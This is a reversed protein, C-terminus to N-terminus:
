VYKRTYMHIFYRGHNSKTRETKKWGARTLAINMKKFAVKDQDIITTIFLKFQMQRKLKDTIERVNASWLRQEIKKPDPYYYNTGWLNDIKIARYKKPIKSELYSTTWNFSVVGVGCCFSLVDVDDSNIFRFM